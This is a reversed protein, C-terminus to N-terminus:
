SLRRLVISAKARIFEILTKREITSVILTWGLLLYIVPGLISVLIPQINSLPLFWYAVTLGVGLVLVKMIRKIEPPIFYKKQSIKYILSTNVVYALLTTIAAGMIGFKPVMYFNLSINITAAVLVSLSVYWTKKAVYAGLSLIFFAGYAVMGWALVGAVKTAGLYNANSLILIIIKSFYAVLIACFGAALLFYTFYKAYIAKAEKRKLISFAFPIWPLVFASVVLSVPLAIKAALAYIGLEFTGIYKVVFFRDSLDLFWLAVGAPLLPLGYTLLTHLYKKSFSFLLNRRVLISSIVFSIVAALLYAEYISRFQYHSRILFVLVMALVLAQNFLFLIAYRGAQLRTVFVSLFYNFLVIFPMTLFNIKLVEQYRADGFIISSISGSFFTLVVTVIILIFALFILANTLYKKQEAKDKADYYYRAAASDLGLMLFIVLFSNVTLILDIVGYDSPSFHRTLIPVLVLGSLAAIVRTIAYVVSQQGIKKFSDIM